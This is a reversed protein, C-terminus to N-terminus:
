KYDAAFSCRIAATPDQIWYSIIDVAGPATSLTPKVGGPFHFFSGWSAITRNGTGDQQIIIIGTQGMKGGTSPPNPFVRNAGGIQWYFNIGTAWNLTVVAGDTLAVPPAANWVAGSTLVRTNNPSTNALYDAYTAPDLRVSAQVGGRLVNLSVYATETGPTFDTVNAAIGGFNAEVLSPNNANFSWRGIIDNAAPTPSAHYTAIQPGDIGGDTSIYKFATIPKNGYFGLQAQGSNGGAFEKIVNNGGNFSTAKGTAFALDGTMTDGTKAVYQGISAGQTTWKEGDWTYTPIGAIPSAPYKQGNTPSSPFDLM